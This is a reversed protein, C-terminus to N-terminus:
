TSLVIQVHYASSTNCTIQVRIRGPWKLTRTPSVESDLSSITSIKGKIMIMIMSIGTHSSRPALMMDGESSASAAGNLRQLCAEENFVPFSEKFLQIENLM